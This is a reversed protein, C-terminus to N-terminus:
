RDRCLGLKAGPAGQSKVSGEAVVHLIQFTNPRVRAWRGDRVGQALTGVLSHKARRAQVADPANYICSVLETAHLAEGGGLLSEVADMLTMSEFAERRPPMADSRNGAVAFGRKNGDPEVKIPELGHLELLPNIREAYQRAAEIEVDLIRRQAFLLKLHERKEDAELVLSERFDM